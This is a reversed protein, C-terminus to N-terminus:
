SGLWSNTMSVRISKSSKKKEIEEM